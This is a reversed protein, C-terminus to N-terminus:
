GDGCAPGVAAPPCCSGVPLPRVGPAGVRGRNSVGADGEGGVLRLLVNPSYCAGGFHPVWYMRVSDYKHRVQLLLLLLLLPPRLLPLFPFVPYRPPPPNHAGLTAGVRGGVWDSRWLQTPPSTNSSVVLTLVADTWLPYRQMSQLVYMLTCVPALACGRPM